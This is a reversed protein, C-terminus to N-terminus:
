DASSTNVIRAFWKLCKIRRQPWVFWQNLKRLDRDDVKKVETTLFLDHDLTVSFLAHQSDDLQKLFVVLVFLWHVCDLPSDDSCRLQPLRVRGDALTTASWANRSSPSSLTFTFNAAPRTIPDSEAHPDRRSKCNSSVSLASELSLTVFVFPM